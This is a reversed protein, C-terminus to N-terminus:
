SRCRHPVREVSAESRVDLAQVFTNPAIMERVMKQMEPDDSRRAGIGALIGNAALACSIARGIGVLGGTVVATRKETRYMRDSPRAQQLKMAWGTRPTGVRRGGVEYEGM